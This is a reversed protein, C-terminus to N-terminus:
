ELYNKSGNWVDMKHFPTALHNFFFFFVLHHLNGGSLQGALVAAAKNQKCVPKIKIVPRSLKGSTERVHTEGNRFACLVTVACVEAVFDWMVQLM